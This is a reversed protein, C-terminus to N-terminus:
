IKRIDLFSFILMKMRGEFFFFYKPNKLIDNLAEELTEENLDDYLIYRGCGNWAAEAANM